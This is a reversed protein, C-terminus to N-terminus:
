ASGDEWVCVQKMHVSSTRRPEIEILMFCSCVIAVRKPIHTRSNPSSTPTKIPTHTTITSLNMIPTITPVPTSQVTYIFEIMKTADASEAALSSPTLQM